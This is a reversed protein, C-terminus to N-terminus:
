LRSQTKIPNNSPVCGVGLTSRWASDTSCSKFFASKLFKQTNSILYSADALAWTFM